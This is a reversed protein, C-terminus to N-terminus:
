ATLALLWSVLWLPWATIALLAGFAVPRDARIAQGRLRALGVLLLGTLSAGLLVFPLAHWGLNLGIAGLLKPDGGGMGRRGRLARYAVAVLLLAGFGIAGGILRAFMDPPSGLAGGALGTLAVAAVLPDPLWFHEADLAALAILLWGFLAGALGVVGPALALSAAGVGACALEIAIHRRDIPAACAVCRGCRILFGAVPLLDIPGLVRGCADCASRGAAVSDGRPWRIVMTALFSGIMAGLVAGGGGWAWAPLALSLDAPM